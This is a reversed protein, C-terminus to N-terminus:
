SAPKRRRRAVSAKYSLRTMYAKQASEARKAREVPDLMGDPDVEREFRTLAAERARATRAKRDPTNAWSQHAAMRARLIRQEPTLSRDM